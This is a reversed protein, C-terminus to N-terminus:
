SRRWILVYEFGTYLTVLAILPMVVGLLQALLATPWLTMAFGLYLACFQAVTKIKAHWTTTLAVGRREADIRLLTVLVDRGLIAAVLWWAIVGRLLLCLFGTTILMKDALPDLFAGYASSAGLRRALYGDCTDTLAAVTFIAASSVVDGVYLFLWAFVPALAIRLFSLANPLLTIIKMTQRAQGTETKKDINGLM